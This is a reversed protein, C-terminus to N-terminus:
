KRTEKAPFAKNETKIERRMIKEQKTEEETTRREKTEGKVRLATGQGTEERPDKALCNEGM